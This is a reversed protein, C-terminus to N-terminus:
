PGVPPEDSKNGGKTVRASEQIVWHFKPVARHSLAHNDPGRHIIFQAARVAYLPGRPRQIEIKMKGADVDGRCLRLPESICETHSRCKPGKVGRKVGKEEGGDTFRHFLPIEIRRSWM